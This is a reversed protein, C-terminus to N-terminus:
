FSTNKLLNKIDQRSFDVNLNMIRKDQIQLEHYRKVQREFFDIEHSDDSERSKLIHPLGSLLIIKNPKPILKIYWKNIFLFALNFEDFATYLDHFYRDCLIMDKKRYSFKVYFFWIWADILAFIPWFIKIFLNKNFTKPNKKGRGTLNKKNVFNILSRLLFYNFPYLIKFSIKNKILYEKSYKIATSKGSGDPGIFSIIM